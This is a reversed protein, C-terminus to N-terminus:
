GYAIACMLRVVYRKTAGQPMLGRDLHQHDSPAPHQGSSGSTANMVKKKMMMPDIKLVSLRWSSRLFMVSDNDECWGAHRCRITM